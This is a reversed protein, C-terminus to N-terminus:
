EGRVTKEIELRYGASKPLAVVRMTGTLTGGSPCCNSDGHHYIHTRCTLARESLELWWGKWLAEDARLPAPLELVVQAEAIATDSIVFLHPILQAGTGMVLEPAYLFHVNEGQGAPMTTFLTPTLLHSTPDSILERLLTWGHEERRWVRLRDQGDGPSATNAHLTVFLTANGFDAETYAWTLEWPGTHGTLAAANAAAPIAAVVAAKSLVEAPPADVPLLLLLAIALAACRM